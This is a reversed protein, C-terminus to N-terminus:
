WEVPATRFGSGILGTDPTRRNDGARLNDLGAARHVRHVVDRVEILQEAIEGANVHM